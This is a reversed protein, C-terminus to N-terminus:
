CGLSEGKKSKRASEQDTESASSEDESESSSESSSASSSDSLEGSSVSGRRRKGTAPQKDKAPSEEADAHSIGVYIIYGHTHYVWMYLLSIFSLHTNASYSNYTIGKAKEKERERQLEM